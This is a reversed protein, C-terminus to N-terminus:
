IIGILYLSTTNITSIRNFSIGFIGTKGPLITVNGTILFDSTYGISSMNIIISYVPDKNKVMFTFGSPTSLINNTPQFAQPVISILNSASTLSDTRDATLGPGRIIMKRLLTNVSYTLNTNNTFTIPNVNYLFNNRVSLIDIFLSNNNEIYFQNNIFQTVSTSEYGSLEDISEIIFVVETTSKIFIKILAQYNRYLLIYLEKKLESTTNRYSYISVGINPVLLLISNDSNSFNKIRFRCTSNINSGKIENILDTALPTVDIITNNYTIRNMLKNVVQSATYEVNEVSSITVLSDNQFVDVYEKTAIQNETEPNVLDILENSTWTAIGDSLSSLTLTSTTSTWTLNSSGVFPGTSTVGSIQIAGEPGNVSFGPNSSIYNDVFSKNCADNLNVPDELGSIVGDSINIDGINMDYIISYNSKVVTTENVSDLVSSM